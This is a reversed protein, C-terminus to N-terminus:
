TRSKVVSYKAGEKLTLRLRFRWLQPDFNWPMFVGVIDSRAKREKLL